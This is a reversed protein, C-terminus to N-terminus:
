FGKNQEHLTRLMLILLGLTVAIDAVNFIGTRLPGLGVNIFDVVYGDYMLRDMLNGMGGAILLAFAVIASPSASKSFLAFGLLVL